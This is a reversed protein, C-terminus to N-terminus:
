VPNLLFISANLYLALCLWLLYPILLLGANRSVRLTCLITCLLVVCLLILCILGLSVSRLGFFLYSWTVNLILQIAFLALTLSIALKKGDALLIQFLAIGMLIYLITWVPAFVWAPPTLAPKVLGAYWVPIGTATFLSGIVGALLCIGITMVLLIIRHPTNKVHLNM